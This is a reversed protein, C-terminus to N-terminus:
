NDRKSSLAYIPVEDPEPFKYPEALATLLDQRKVCFGLLAFSVCFAVLDRGLRVQFMECFKPILKSVSGIPKGESDEFLESIDESKRTVLM